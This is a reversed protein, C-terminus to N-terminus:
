TLWVYPNEEALREFRSGISELEEIEELVHDLVGCFDWALAALIAAVHLDWQFSIQNGKEQDPMKPSDARWRSQRTTHSYKGGEAEPSPGACDAQSPM